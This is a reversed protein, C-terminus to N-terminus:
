SNVGLAKNCAEAYENWEALFRIADAKYLFQIDNHFYVRMSNDSADVCEVASLKFSIEKNDSIFYQETM